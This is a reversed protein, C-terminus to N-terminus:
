LSFQAFLKAWFSPCGKELWWRIWSKWAENKRCWHCGSFWIEMAVWLSSFIWFMRWMSSAFFFVIFSSWCVKQFFWNVGVGESGESGESRWHTAEGRWSRTSPFTSTSRSRFLEQRMARGVQPDKSFNNARNLRLSFRSISSRWM